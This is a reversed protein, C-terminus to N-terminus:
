EGARGITSIHGATYHVTVRDGVKYLNYDSPSVPVSTTSGDGFTFHFYWEAPSATEPGLPTRSGAPYMDKGAIPATFTDACAQSPCYTAAAPAPSRDDHTALAAGVVAAVAGFTAAAAAITLRRM